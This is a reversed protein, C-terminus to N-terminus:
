ALADSVASSFLGASLAGNPLVNPMAGGIAAQVGTLRFSHVKGISIPGTLAANAPNRLATLTGGNFFIAHYYARGAVIPQPTLLNAGGYGAMAVAGPTDATASMLNGNEDFLGMVLQTVLPADASTMIWLSRATGSKAATLRSYYLSDAVLSTTGTVQAPHITGALVNGDAGSYFPASGSGGGGWAGPGTM